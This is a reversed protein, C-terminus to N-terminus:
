MDQDMGTLAPELIKLVEPNKDMVEQLKMRAPMLTKMVGEMETAVKADFAKVEADSMKPLAKARAAVGRMNKRVAEIKPVAAKASAEDTITNFIESMAKMNGVIEMSITESTDKVVVPAGGDGCGVLLAALFLVSLIISKKM